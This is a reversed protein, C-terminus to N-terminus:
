TEIDIEAEPVDDSHEIRKEPMGDASIFISGGRLDINVQPVNRRPGDDERWNFNTKLDFIAGVPNRASYLMESRQEEIKLRAKKITTYVQDADPDSEDARTKYNILAHRDLFGLAYALGPITYPKEKDDCDAFYADIVAQMAKPDTWKRPRGGKNKPPPGITNEPTETRSDFSM